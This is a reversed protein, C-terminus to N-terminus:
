QDVAAAMGPRDHVTCWRPRPYDDAGDWVFVTDSVARLQSRRLFEVCPGNRPTRRFEAVIETGGRARAQSIAVHLMADEIGRGIVRCSLIFDVLRARTGEISIGM